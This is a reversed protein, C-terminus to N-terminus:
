PTTDFVNGYQAIYDGCHNVQNTGAFPRDEYVVKLVRPFEYKFDQIYPNHFRVGNKNHLSLIFHDSHVNTVVKRVYQHNGGTGIRVSLYVTYKRPSVTSVKMNLYKRSWQSLDGEGTISFTCKDNCVICIELSKLIGFDWGKDDCHSVTPCDTSRKM